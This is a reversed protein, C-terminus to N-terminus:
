VNVVSNRGGYPNSNHASARPDEIWQGDVVFRYEHSGPPLDVDVSWEGDGTRNLKTAPKWNNFSGALCVSSAGPRALTFRVPKRASRASRAETQPAV